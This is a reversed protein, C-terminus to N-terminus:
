GGPEINWFASVIPSALRRKHVCIGVDYPKLVPDVEICQVENRFASKELVLQPVVGVGCGLRVMPIIAEHGSVEAYIKPRIGKDRFWVDVRKRSLGQESLVMPVESWDIEKGSVLSGVKCQVVPAIFVIPTMTITKFLLTEALRDPRAAVTVDAQENLVKQIADAADGTQLKIHIGPYRERFKAFLETLVTYSATVSCYLAIEGSLDKQSEKMSEGFREWRDIIDRAFQKFEEGAPSLRVSRNDRFFLIQGIEEELRQITRSLASPTINCALSTKGFHLTTSLQLFLRMSHFDM